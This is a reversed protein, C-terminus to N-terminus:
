EAAPVSMCICNNESDLYFTIGEDGPILKALDADTLTYSDTGKAVVFGEVQYNSYITVTKDLAKAIVAHANDVTKSTDYLFVSVDQELSNLNVYANYSKNYPKVAIGNYKEAYAASNGSFDGGNMNIAVDGNIFGIGGMSRTNATSAATNNTYTGGNFNVSGKGVASCSIAYVAGCYNTTNNTFTCDNFNVVLEGAGTFYLLRAENDTFTGGNVTLSVTGAGNVYFLSSGGTVTSSNSYTKVNKVTLDEVVGTASNNATSSLQLVVGGNSRVNQVVVGSKFTVSGGKSASILASGTKTRAMYPANGDITINEVIITGGTATFLNTTNTEYRMLYANPIGELSLTVTEGENVPIAGMVYIINQGESKANAALIEKARDFTAVPTEPTLGDNEDNGPNTKITSKQLYVAVGIQQNSVVNYLSNELDLETKYYPDLNNTLLYAIADAETIKYTNYGHLLVTNIDIDSYTVEISGGVMNSLPKAAYIGYAGTDDYVYFSGADVTDKAGEFVVQANRGVSVQPNGYGEAGTNNKVTGGKLYLTGNGTYSTSNNSCGIYIGACPSESTNDHIYGGNLEVNASQLGSITAGVTSHNNYFEGGNITLSASSSSGVSIVSAYADYTAYTATQKNNYFEGGNIVINCGASAILGATMSSENDKIVVGNNITVDNYGSCYITACTSGNVCNQITTGANLILKANKELYVMGQCSFGDKLGPFMEGGGDITINELTLTVGDQVAIAGVTMGINRVIKANPMDAMSWTTDETIPMQGCLIIVPNKSDKLLEKAREFTRVAQEMSSGDNADDGCVGYATLSPDKPSAGLYVYDARDDVRWGAYLNLDGTVAKLFNYATTLEPETYWGIFLFGEKQPDSPRDARARYNVEYTYLLEEGDWFNVTFTQIKWKAYLTVSEYVPQTFDFKNQFTPETYWGEVEYGARTAVPEEVIGGWGLEVSDPEITATQASVFKVTIVMDKTTFSVTVDQDINKLVFASGNRSLTGSTVQVDDLEYGISKDGFLSFTLWTQGPELTVSTVKQGDVKAYGDEGVFTVTYSEQPDTPDEPETPDTPNAPEDPVLPEQKGNVMENFLVMLKAAQARTIPNKPLFVNGPFGCFLGAETCATVASKAWKSIQDADAYGPTDETQPLAVGKYAAFRVLMVAAEQRKIANDPAFTGDGNGYVIGNESAWIVAKTYWSKSPVDTFPTSGSVAPSGDMRYLLTAMQARTLEGDPAFYDDGVGKMLGQEYAAYVYDFYWSSEDMVDKFRYLEQIEITVPVPDSGQETMTISGNYTGSEGTFTLELVATDQSYDEYCAWAFSVTTATTSLDSIGASGVLSKASELTLTEPFSYVLRGNGSGEGGPIVVQVTVNDYNQKTTIQSVAAQPEAALVSGSMGLLMAVVLLCSIIRKFM